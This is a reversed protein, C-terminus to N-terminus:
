NYIALYIKDFAKCENTLCKDFLSFEDSTEEQALVFYKAWAQIVSPYFCALLNKMFEIEGHVTFYRTCIEFASEYNRDIMYEIFAQKPEPDDLQKIILSQNKIMENMIYTQYRLKECGTLLM